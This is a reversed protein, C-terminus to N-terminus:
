AQVAPPLSGGESEGSEDSDERPLLGQSGEWVGSLKGTGDGSGAGTGSAWMLCPWTLLARSAPTPAPARLLANHSSGWLWAPVRVKIKLLKQDWLDPQQNCRHYQLMESVLADLQSACLRDWTGETESPEQLVSCGVDFIRM